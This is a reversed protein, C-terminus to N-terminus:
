GNVSEKTIFEKNDATMFYLGDSTILQGKTPEVDKTGENPLFIFSKGNYSFGVAKNNFYAM